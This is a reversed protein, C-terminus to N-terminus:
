GNAYTDRVLLPTSSWMEPLTAKTPKGIQERAEFDRFVSLSDYQCGESEELVFDAFDLQPFFLFFTGGYYWYWM